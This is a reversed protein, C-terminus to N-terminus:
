RPLPIRLGYTLIFYVLLPPIVAILAIVPVKRVGMFLSFFLITLIGGTIFGVFKMAAVSLFLILAFLFINLFNRAVLLPPAERDATRGSLSKLFLVLALVVILAVALTPLTAPPMGYAERPSTQHPIVFFITFIGTCFLIVSVVLDAKRM